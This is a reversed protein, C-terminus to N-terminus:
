RTRGVDGLVDHLTSSLLLSWSCCFCFKGCGGGLEIGEAVGASVRGPKLGEMGDRSRLLCLWLIWRSVVTSRLAGSQAVGCDIAPESLSEWLESGLSVGDQRRSEMKSVALSGTHFGGSLIGSWCIALGAFGGTAEGGLGAGTVDSRSLEKSSRSLCM